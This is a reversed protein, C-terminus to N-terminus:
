SIICKTKKPSGIETSKTRSSKKKKGTPSKPDDIDISLVRGTSGTKDSSNTEIEESNMSVIMVSSLLNYVVKWSKVQREKMMDPIADCLTQILAEGLTEFYKENAGFNKHKRGLVVLSDLLPKLDSLSQIALDMMGAIMKGHKKIDTKFLSMVEPSKSFFNMFLIKGFKDNNLKALMAHWTEMVDKAVDEHFRPFDSKLLTHEIYGAVESFIDDINSAEKKLAASVLELTSDPIQVKSSASSSLYLDWIEQATKRFMKETPKPTKFHDLDYMHIATWLDVEHGKHSHVIAEKFEESRFEMDLILFIASSADSSKFRSTTVGSKASANDDVKRLHRLEAYNEMATIMIQTMLSFITAWAEETEKNFDDKLIEHFTQTLAKNLVEFFERSAGYKTHRQGLTVLKPVLSRLDAMLTIATDIMGVLMAGHKKMDHKFLPMVTPQLSFWNMFLIKGFDEVSMKSNINLWSREIKETIKGAFRPFPGDVMMTEIEMKLDTFLTRDIEGAGIKTKVANRMQPRVNICLPSKEDVFRDYVSQANKKLESFKVCSDCILAFEYAARWFLVNEEAYEFQLYRKFLDTRYDLELLISFAYRVMAPDGARPTGGAKPSLPVSMLESFSNAFSCM